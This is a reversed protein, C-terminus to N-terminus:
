ITNSLCLYFAFKDIAIYCNYFLKGFAAPIFYYLADM